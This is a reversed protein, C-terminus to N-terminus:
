NVKALLGEVDGQTYVPAAPEDILVMELTNGSLM